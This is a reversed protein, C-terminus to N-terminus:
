WDYNYDLHDMPDGAKYIPADPDYEEERRNPLSRDYLDM